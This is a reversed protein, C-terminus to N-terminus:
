YLKCKREICKQKKIGQGGYKPKDKCYLCKQCERKLCGDCSGCNSRRPPEYIDIPVAFGYQKSQRRSRKESTTNEAALFSKHSKCSRFKNVLDYTKVPSKMDNLHAGDNTDIDFTSDNDENIVAQSRVNHVVLDSEIESDYELEETKLSISNENLSSLMDVDINRSQPISSVNEKCPSSSLLVDSNNFDSGDITPDDDNSANNGNMESQVIFCNCSQGSTLMTEVERIISAEFDGLRNCKMLELEKRLLATQKREMCLLSVLVSQKNTLEKIKDGLSLIDQTIDTVKRMSLKCRVRFYSKYFHIL